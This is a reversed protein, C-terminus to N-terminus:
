KGHVTAQREDLSLAAAFHPALRTLAISHRTVKVSFDYEDIGESRSGRQPAAMTENQKSRGNTRLTM